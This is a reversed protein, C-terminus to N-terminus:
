DISWYFQSYYYRYDRRSCSIGWLLCTLEFPPLFIALAVASVIGSVVWSEVERMLPGLKRDSIGRYEEGRVNNAKMVYDAAKFTKGLAAFKNGMDEADFAKWANVIVDRDAANIKLDPNAMLKNVSAMAEDYSRITKGQFNKINGAIERSFLKINIALINESRIM